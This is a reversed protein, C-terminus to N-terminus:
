QHRGEYEDDSPRDLPDVPNSIHAGMGDYEQARDHRMIPQVSPAVEGEDGVHPPQVSELQHRAKPDRNPITYVAGGTTIALAVATIWEASTIGTGGSSSEQVANVIAGAFPVLFGAFAKAYPKIKDLTM